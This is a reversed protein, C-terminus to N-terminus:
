FLNQDRLIILISGFLKKYVLNCVCHTPLQLYLSLSFHLKSYFSSVRKCDLTSILQLHWLVYTAVMFLFLLFHVMFTIWCWVSCWHCIIAVVSQELMVNSVIMTMWELRDEEWWAQLCGIWRTARSPESCPLHLLAHARDYIDDGQVAFFFPVFLFACPPFLYTHIPFIM